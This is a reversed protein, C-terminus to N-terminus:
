IIGERFTPAVRAKSAQEFAYAIQIPQLEKYAGAFFSLGVPLHHVLGMPVTIHPYGAMAAPSFYSFGNGYDGNVLDICVAPGNTIGVIADLKQLALM